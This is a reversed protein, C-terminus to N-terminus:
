YKGEKHFSKGQSGKVRLRKNKSARLTKEAQEVIEAHLRLNRNKDCEGIKPAAARSRTSRRLLGSSSQLLVSSGLHSDPFLGPSAVPSILVTPGQPISDSPSKVPLYISDDEDFLERTTGFGREKGYWVHYSIKPTRNTHFAKIIYRDRGIDYTWYRNDHDDWARCVLLGRRTTTLSNPFSGGGTKQLVERQSGPKVTPSLNEQIFPPLETTYISLADDLYEAFPEDSMSLGPEAIRNVM